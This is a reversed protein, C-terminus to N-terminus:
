KCQLGNDGPESRDTKKEEKAPLQENATTGLAQTVAGEMETVSKQAEAVTTDGELALLIRAATSSITTPEVLEPEPEPEAQPAPAPPPPSPSPPPPLGADVAAVQLSDPRVTPLFRDPPAVTVSGAVDGTAMLVVFDQTAPPASPSLNDVELTGALSVQGDVRLQDNDGDANLRIRLKGLSTQVFNGIVHMVGFGSGAFPAVTGENVLAGAVLTGNGSVLGEPANTFTQGAADLTGEEALHLSGRHLVPRALALTGEEVRITSGPAWSYDVGTGGFTFVDGGTKVITGQNSFTCPDCYPGESAGYGARVRGGTRLNFFAGAKNNFASDRSLVLAGEPALKYNVTGENDLTTAFLEHTGSGRLRLTAGSQVVFRGGSISTAESADWDFIGGTPVNLRGENVPGGETVLNVIVIKGANFNTREGLRVNGFFHVNAGTINLTGDIPGDVFVHNGQEFEVRGRLTTTGGHLNASEAAAFRITGPGADITQDLGVFFMFDGGVTSLGSGTKSISGENTLANATSVEPDVMSRISGDGDFVFSGGPLNFLESGNRLVLTGNGVQRVTGENEVESRLLTRTGDGPIALTADALVSLESDDLDQQLTFQHSALRARMRLPGDAEATGIAIPPAGAPASITGGNTDIEARITTAGSGNRDSDANLVLDLVGAESGTSRVAANIEIDGNANLTLKSTAGSTKTIAQDIRIRGNGGTEEGIEEGGTGVVVRAGQNLVGAIAQTAVRSRGIYEDYAFGFAVEGEYENAEEVDIRRAGIRWTGGSRDSAASVDVSGDFELRAAATVVTGGNGGGAGRASLSGHVDAEQRGWVVVRGGNGDSLADARIESGRAVTVRNATEFGALAAQGAAEGGILITGGGNAGSADITGPTGDGPAVQIERALLVVKGGRNEVGRAVIRGSHTLTDAFIGIADGRLKGLNIAASNSGGVQFSIGELGRGTIEASEGAAVIVSGDLAKVVASSGVTVDKGILVVDGGRGIVRGNVTLPGPPSGPEGGFFLRGAIADQETMRLTSATFGATDVLAGAGVTIGAPNVLVLRGNSSLTGYIASPNTGIVRNISLSAANPQAFHTTTGYPVGFRNWNIVSRSTGVGNTTTVTRVNGTTTVEASGHPVSQIGALTEAAGFCGLLAASLGLLRFGAVAPYSPQEAGRRWSAFDRHM